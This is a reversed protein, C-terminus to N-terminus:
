CQTHWDGVEGGGVAWQGRTHLHVADPAQHAYRGKIKTRQASELCAKASAGKNLGQRERGAGWLMTCREQGGEKRALGGRTRSGCEKGKVESVTREVEGGWWEVCLM